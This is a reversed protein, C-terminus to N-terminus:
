TVQAFLCSLFWPECGPKGLGQGTSKKVHARLSNLSGLGLLIDQQRHANSSIASWAEARGLECSLEGEAQVGLCLVSDGPHQSLVASGLIWCFKNLEQQKCPGQNPASPTSVLLWLGWGRLSHGGQQM